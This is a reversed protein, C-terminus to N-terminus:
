EVKARKRPAGAALDALADDVKGDMHYHLLWYYAPGHTALSLTSPIKDASPFLKALEDRVTAEDAYAYAEKHTKRGVKYEIHLLGEDVRMSIKKRPTMCREGGLTEKRRLELEDGITQGVARAFASKGVFAANGTHSKGRLESIYDTRYSETFTRLQDPSISVREILVTTVLAQTDLVNQRCLPCPM